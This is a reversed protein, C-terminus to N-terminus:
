RRAGGSRRGGSRQAAAATELKALPHADPSISTSHGASTFMDHHAEVEHPRYVGRALKASLVYGGVPTLSRSRRPATAAREM